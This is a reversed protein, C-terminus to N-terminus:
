NKDHSICSLHSKNNKTTSILKESSLYEITGCISVRHYFDRQTRDELCHVDTDVGLGPVVM